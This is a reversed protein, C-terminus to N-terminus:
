LSNRINVTASNTEFWVKIDLNTYVDLQQLLERTGNWFQAMPVGERGASYGTIAMVFIIKRNKEDRQKYQEIVRRSEYLAFVLYMAMAIVAFLPTFRTLTKGVGFGALTKFAFRPM